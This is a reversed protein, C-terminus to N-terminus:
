IFAYPGEYRGIHSTHSVLGHEASWSHLLCGRPGLCSQPAAGPSLTLCIETVTSPCTLVVTGAWRRAMARHVHGCLVAEVNSQARIVRELPATEKLRYEDLCSIGSVFPPHHMVVITPKRPDATLTSQLWSL